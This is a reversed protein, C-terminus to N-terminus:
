RRTQESGSLRQALYIPVISVIVLVVAIVSVVPAQNPRFMNNLIYIPLTTVGSGATFTTVIIEDFSLAFALLAGALLASRLQPFTVLRFTTWVGAGLDASAEELNTGTRRLRAIVNNFVTVICFTAHAIVVTWISLPVGLITRFFNNLAIGTIIGPLAIPLIILLSIAERGFFEFRQLALSILTGLVLSILTAVIAIGVSTGVAELAGASQFAKGWWELTFGPPPWTLSTSTSFSNVLVVFLPLYVALLILGTVVGLVTRSLRSLRM